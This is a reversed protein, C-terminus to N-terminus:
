KTSWQKNMRGETRTMANDTRRRKVAKPISM